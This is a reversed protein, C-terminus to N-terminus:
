HSYVQFLDLYTLNDFDTLDKFHSVQIQQANSMFDLDIKRRTRLPLKNACVWSAQAFGGPWDRESNSNCDICIISRLLPQACVTSLNNAVFLQSNGWCSIKLVASPPTDQFVMNVTSGSNLRPVHKRSEFDTQTAM